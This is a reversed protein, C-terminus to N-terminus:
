PGVEPGYRGMGMEERYGNVDTQWASLQARHSRVAELATQKMGDALDRSYRQDAVEANVWAERQPVVGEPARLWAERKAKRYDREARAYRRVEVKLADVAEDIKGSLRVMEQHAANLDM